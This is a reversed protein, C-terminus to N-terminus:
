RQRTKAHLLLALGGLVALSVLLLRLTLSEGLLLIGALAALIPVSLQVAAAQFASLGGLASYWIAYGIGSTLAGSLVAYVLGAGDVRLHPLYALVLVAALPVSRLFNGASAALPEGAGRALLSYVAWALGALLMALGGNLSPASAGPLLLAILGALALVFGLCQQVGPREGKIVSYVLMSIQVTGFLLLAGTGTELQLYAYSFAAAYVFLATAASWSGTPRRGDRRLWVLLGLMLAGALLRVGTFSAADIATTQLALRCLLSNGAFALMALATFLLTRATLSQPM